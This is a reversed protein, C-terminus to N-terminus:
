EMGELHFCDGAVRELILRELRTLDYLGYQLALDVAALFAAEPYTRKLNLLRKLRAVGRGTSRRKLETVYRDLVETHGMLHHEEAAPGQYARQKALPAHHGKATLKGDRKGMLRPHDAVQHHDFFVRVRDPYKLVEVRQGILREPVSYRNTDLTVYAEVDVVRDGSQYVPPTSAPLPILAPKELVYAAEPSMGLARKPKQNAVNQCWTLAQHTLDQWDRFTRGALFNGEVYAFPREVRAKRDAHGVAHPRFTVGFFRGFAAMEPAIQAKPGSGSAVLVSTNDIVCCPCTGDMFRFAETLFWRAEFRTYRPYYQIFLRRSYALVLAACQATVPKDGIIVRHPSTDHQMEQAPAFQYTGARRKPARFGAQRVLRTLTRYALDLHYDDKLVEQLRVVHGRCRKLLPDILGLLDPDLDPM